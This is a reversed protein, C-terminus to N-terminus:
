HCPPVTSSCPAPCSAVPEWRSSDCAGLQALEDCSKGQLCAAREASIDPRVESDCGGHVCFLLSTPFNPCCDALHGVTVECQFEDPSIGDEAMLFCLAL